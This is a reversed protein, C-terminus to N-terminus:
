NKKSYKEKAVHLIQMYTKGKGKKLARTVTNIHVGLAEAAERKWGHPFLLISENQMEMIEIKVLTTFKL